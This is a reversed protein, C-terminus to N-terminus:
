LLQGSRFGTNKIGYGYISADPLATCDRFFV